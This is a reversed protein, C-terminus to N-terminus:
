FRSVSTTRASGTLATDIASTISTAGKKNNSQEVIIGGGCEGCTALGALLNVVENKPPRGSLYGSEFRV